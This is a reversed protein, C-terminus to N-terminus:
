PGNASANLAALAEVSTPCSRQFLVETPYGRSVFDRYFRMCVWIGFSSNLMGLQQWSTKWTYLAIIAAYIDKLAM